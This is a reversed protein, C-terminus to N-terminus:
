DQADDDEYCRVLYGFAIIVLVLILGLIEQYSM